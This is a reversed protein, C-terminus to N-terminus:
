IKPLSIFNKLKNVKLAIETKFCGGERTITLQPLETFDFYEKLLNNLDETLLNFFSDNADLKDNELIKKARVIEISNKKM